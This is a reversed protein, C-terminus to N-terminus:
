LNEEDVIEKLFGWLVPRSLVKYFQERTITIKETNPPYDVVSWGSSFLAEDDITSLFTKLYAPGFVEDKEFVEYAGKGGAGFRRGLTLGRDEAQAVQMAHLIDM